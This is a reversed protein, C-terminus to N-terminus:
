INELQSMSGHYSHDEDSYVTFLYSFRVELVSLDSVPITFNVTWM